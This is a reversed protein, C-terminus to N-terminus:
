EASFARNFVALAAVGQSTTYMTQLQFYVTNDKPQSLRHRHLVTGPDVRLRFEVQKGQDLCAMSFTDADQGQTSTVGRGFVEAVEVGPTWRLRGHARVGWFLFLGARLLRQVDKPREVVRTWGGGRAQHYLVLPQLLPNREVGRRSVSVVDMPVQSAAVVLAELADVELCHERSSIFVLRGGRGEVERRGRDVLAGLSHCQDAKEEQAKGEVYTCCTRTGYCLVVVDPLGHTTTAWGHIFTRAEPVTSDLLFVVRPRPRAQGNCMLCHADRDALFVSELLTGTTDQPLRFVANCLNCEGIGDSGGTLWFPNALARCKSNPCQPLDKVKRGNTQTMAKLLPRFVMRLLKGRRSPIDSFCFTFAASGVPQSYPPRVVFASSPYEQPPSWPRRCDLSVISHILMFLLICVILFHGLGGRLVVTPEHIMLCNIFMVALSAGLLTIFAPLTKTGVCRWLIACHHHIGDICRHCLFCHRAGPARLLRCRSCWTWTVAERPPAHLVDDPRVECPNTAVLWLLAVVGLACLVYLLYQLPRPYGVAQWAKVEALVYLLLIALLGLRVAWGFLRMAALTPGRPGWAVNEVVVGERAARLTLTEADDM